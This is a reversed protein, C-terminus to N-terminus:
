SPNLDWLACHHRVAFAELSQVEPAGPKLVQIAERAPPWRPFLPSVPSGSRAFSVWSTRMALSLAKSGPPLEDPRGSVALGIHKYPGDGLESTMSLDFLYKLETSHAARYSSAADDAFEYSYAPVWQALLRASTQAGCAYYEDGHAASSAEYANPYNELSYAALAGAPDKGKASLVAELMQRHADMSLKPDMFLLGEDTNNGVLVPVRHFRGATFAARQTETLVRGDVTAFDFARGPGLLDTNDLIKAADLARLCSATNEECGVRKAFEVGRKQSDALSPADLMYGGSQVIARHFLGASLPSILLSQVNMGGASQGFNTVNGPDGGFREINQQVWRLALQQDMVGQNAAPVGPTDLAPHALFGFPGLRYNLTVVVVGDGLTLLPTPDASDGSGSVNSGGHIWVMVPFPKAASGAASAPNRPVYVNLFLCDESAGSQPAPSLNNLCRHRFQTADLVETWREAPQPPQWRLEGVPPKAYPIGLFTITATNLKGQIPGTGTEVRAPDGKAAPTSNSCGAPVALLPLLLFLAALRGCIPLTM